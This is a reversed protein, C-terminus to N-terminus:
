DLVLVREFGQSTWSCLLKAKSIIIGSLNSDCLKGVTRHEPQTKGCTLAIATTQALIFGDNKTSKWCAPVM